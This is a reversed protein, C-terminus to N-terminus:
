VHARGIELKTGDRTTIYESSTVWGDFREQSYGQYRGFSSVKSNESIAQESRAQESQGPQNTASEAAAIPAAIVVPTVGASITLLGAALWCAARQSKGRVQEM